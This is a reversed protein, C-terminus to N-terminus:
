IRSKYQVVDGLVGCEKCSVERLWAIKQLKASLIRMECLYVSANLIYTVQWIDCLSDTGSSPFSILLRLTWIRQRIYLLLRLRRTQSLLQESCKCSPLVPMALALRLWLCTYFCRICKSLGHDEDTLPYLLFHFCTATTSLKPSRLLRLMIMLIFCLTVPQVWKKSGFATRSIQLPIDPLQFSFCSDPFLLSPQFLLIFRELGTHLILPCGGTGTTASMNLGLWLWM